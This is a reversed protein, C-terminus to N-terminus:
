GGRELFKSSRAVSFWNRLPRVLAGLRAVVLVLFPWSRESISARSSCRLWNGVCRVSSAAHLRCSNYRVVQYLTVRTRHVSITDLTSRLSSVDFMDSSAFPVFFKRLEEFKFWDRSTEGRRRRIVKGRNEVIEVLNLEFWPESTHHQGLKFSSSSTQVGQLYIASLYSFRHIDQTKPGQYM